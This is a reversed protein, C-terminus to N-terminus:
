EEWVYDNIGEALAKQKGNVVVTGRFGYNEVHLKVRGDIREWRLSIKGAASEYGCECFSLGSDYHPDIRVCDHLLLQLGGLFKYFWGSVSGWFHHNLSLMRGGDEREFVGEEEKLRNFAEWLTTAGKKIWYAYSPFQEHVISRYALATHGARSLEEFLYRAGVVGVKFHGNEKQVLEVLAQQAARENESFIGAHLALSQATQTNCAVREDTIWKRQFAEILAGRMNVLAKEAARDPAVKFLELAHNLLIITVLSDTVELPTSYDGEGLTGTECWDGLGIALLGDQNLRTQLYQFYREIAGINQEVVCRDGYFRYLMYPLEILVSDWAPGNGWEFGWGGTPVIGPLAGKDNQAKRVSNLWEGLDAGCDFNYLFQEASLSADATWGNKERQPCDTPICVLNSLDSRLTCKQISNLTEDSCCFYGRQAVASHIVLYELLSEKAQQEQLGKVLVYRFGHYTFSPTYEQYGEKCIYVDHQAYDKPTVANMVSGIEFKGRNFIEGYYLDLRQGARGQIRLRCLGANVQGFDYVYGEQTPYIKVPAFTRSVTVAHATCKKREGKPSPALMAHRHPLACGQLFVEPQELRADYREGARLDDYTIPSPYLEVSEDSQAVIQGDAYLVFGLRPACRYSASEFRWCDGDMSNSFGNGLLVCLVNDERLCDTLDYEDYYVYDDPNSIYPAFYGKTIDRGNLFLRYFGVASIKLNVRKAAPTCFCKRFLPACVHKERTCYTEGAYIYQVNVM